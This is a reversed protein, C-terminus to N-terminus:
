DFFACTYVPSNLVEQCRISLWRGLYSIKLFKWLGKFELLKDLARRIHKFDKELRHMERQATKSFRGRWKVEADVDGLQEYMRVNRYIDGDCFPQANPHEERIIAQFSQPLDLLNTYVICAPKSLKSETYFDAIWWKDWIVRDAALVRHKGQLVNIQVHAPLDLIEDDSAINDGLTYPFDNPILVKIYNDPNLRICGESQFKEVLTQIHEERTTRTNTNTLNLNSLRVKARGKFFSQSFRWDLSSM